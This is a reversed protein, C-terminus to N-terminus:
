AAWEIIWVFESSGSFTVEGSLSLLLAAALMGTRRRSDREMDYRSFM